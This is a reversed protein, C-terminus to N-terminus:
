YGGYLHCPAFFKSRWLSYKLLRVIWDSLDDPGYANRSACPNAIPRVCGAHRTNNGAAPAFPGGVGPICPLLQRTVSGNGNRQEPWCYGLGPTPKRSQRHVITSFNSPEHPRLFVIAIRGEMGQQASPARSDASPRPIGNNDHSLHVGAEDYNRQYQHAVEGPPATPIGDSPSRAARRTPRSPCSPTVKVETTPMSSQGREGHVM